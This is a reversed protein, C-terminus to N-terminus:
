VVATLRADSDLLAELAARRRQALEEQRQLQGAVVQSVICVGQVMCM